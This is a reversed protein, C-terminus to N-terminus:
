FDFANQRISYQERVPPVPHHPNDGPVASGRNKRRSRPKNEAAPKAAARHPAKPQLSPLPQGTYERAEAPTGCIKFQRMETLLQPLYGAPVSVLTFQDYIEIKGIERGSLQTFETVAGMVHNPAVGSQRGATLLVKKMAPEQSSAPAPLEPAPLAFDMSGLQIELLLAAIQEPSFGKQILAEIQPMCSFNRSQSLKAELRNMLEQQQKQAFEKSAPLKQPELQSKAARAIQQLEHVQSRGSCLTIATGSKGARGTRGIRHIYYEPNQPLDYNIVFDINEVDIGRAAVDTAVLLNIRGHRFASLVQTRQPQRMDGHLGEALFGRSKLFLSVEETMRKTNCFIMALKPAHHLLILHLADRKKSSPVDYYLQRIAKVSPQKKDIEILEPARQFQKTLALIPPPMTASFLATQREAPTQRLITEIDEKFGMSLMEDAEDLVAFKVRSLDLSGRRMHDMIRGPTGVVVNAGERLFALQRQMPAGGYIETARIGRKFRSLKRIEACAQLALERTPCLVLVQVAKLRPDILEVAPIGFALTKGTGTQSRGIVDLGRRLPPIAKAQIETAETFGMAEVARALPAPLELQSFLVSM